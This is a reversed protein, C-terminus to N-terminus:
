RVLRIQFSHHRYDYGVSGHNFDVDWAGYSGGAYPSSSWFQAAVTAPFATTDIAPNSRSRDAISSMEKVSPLRWGHQSQARALAEEYTYATPTPPAIRCTSDVWSWGEPCRRWVLGTKSDTVESGDSSYSYRPTQALAAGALVLAAVTTAAMQQLLKM